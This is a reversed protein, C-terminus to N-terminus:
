KLLLAVNQAPFQATKAECSCPRLAHRSATSTIARYCSRSGSLTSAFPVHLRRSSNKSGKNMMTIVSMTRRIMSTPRQLWERELRLRDGGVQCSADNNYFRCHVFCNSQISFNPRHNQRVRRSPADGHFGIVAGEVPVQHSSTQITYRLHASCAHPITVM